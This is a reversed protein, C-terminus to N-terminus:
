IQALAGNAVKFFASPDGRDVIQSRNSACQLGGPDLKDVTVLGPDSQRTSSMRLRQPRTPFSRQTRRGLKSRREGTVPISRPFQNTTLLCMAPLLCTGACGNAYCKSSDAHEALGAPWRRVASISATIPGSKRSDIFRPHSRLVQQDSCKRSCRRHLARSRPAISANAQLLVSNGVNLAGVPRRRGGSSVPKLRM